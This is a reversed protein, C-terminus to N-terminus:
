PSRKPDAVVPDVPRGEIARLFLVLADFDEARFGFNRPRSPDADDRLEPDLYPNLRIDRVHDLVVFLLDIRSGNHFFFRGRSPPRLSPTKYAGIWRPDKLGIPLAAFRGPEQGAVVPRSSDGIGINHFSGDSYNGGSHCKSCRAQGHFLRHGELVVRATDAQQGPEREWRKLTAEDLLPEYDKAELTQGKRQRRTRDARDHVADGSLLTRLYIALAKGVADQTPPTGFVELFRQRYTPHARLRGVVGGWVHRFAPSPGAREDDLTRQVVEELANARGDWFQYKHYVGNILSPTNLNDGSTTAAPQDTFARDPRHCSACSRRTPAEPDLWSTDFFLDKGLQWKGLTPPNAAPVHPTPDELGLPVKIKVVQPPRASAVAAASLPSLGLFGVPQAPQPPLEVRNWFQPLSEWEKARSEHVFVIPVDPQLQGALPAMWALTPSLPEPQPPPPPQGLEAGNLPQPLTAPAAPRAAKPRYRGAPECGGLGTALVLLLVLRRSM